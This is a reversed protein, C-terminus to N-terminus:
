AVRTATASVDEKVFGISPALNVSRSVPDHLEKVDHVNEDPVGRQM